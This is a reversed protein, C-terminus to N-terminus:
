WVRGVVLCHRVHCECPTCLPNTVAKRLSKYGSRHLAAAAGCGAIGSGVVCVKGKNGGGNGGIGVGGVEGSVANAEINGQADTTLLINHCISTPVKAGVAALLTHLRISAKAKLVLKYVAFLLACVVM